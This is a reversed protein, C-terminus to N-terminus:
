ICLLVASLLCHLELGIHWNELRELAQFTEKVMISVSFRSAAM